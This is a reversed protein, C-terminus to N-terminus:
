DDKKKKGFGGFGGLQVEFPAGTIEKWKATQDATLVKLAKEKSEKRLTNMKEFAEKFDGGKGKGFLGSMEKTMDDRIGKLKDKQEDTLKIEKVVEEDTNLTVLVDQQREIQKFRKAQDPKLIDAVAKNTKEIREKAAKEREEKTQDKKFGFGGKGLETGVAQIKEKQEDTLKLEEQVGKNMLLGFGGGGFGGGPRQANANFTVIAVLGFVVLIGIVKRM